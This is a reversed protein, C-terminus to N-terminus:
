DIYVDRFYLRLHSMRVVPAGCIQAAKKEQNAMAKWWVKIYVVDM